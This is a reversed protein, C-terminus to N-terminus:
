YYSLKLSFINLNVQKFQEEFSWNQQSSFESSPTSHASGHGGRDGGPPTGGGSLSSRNTNTRNFSSESLSMPGSGPLQPMLPPFPPLLSPPIGRVGSDNGRLHSLPSTLYERRFAELGALGLPPPEKSAAVALAAAALSSAIFINRSNYQGQGNRQIILFISAAYLILHGHMGTSSVNTTSGTGNNNEGSGGDGSTDRFLNLQGANSVALAAAAAERAQQQAKLEREIEEREEREKFNIIKSVNQFRSDSM